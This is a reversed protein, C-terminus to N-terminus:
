WKEDDSFLYQSWNSLKSKKMLLISANKRLAFSPIEDTAYITCPLRAKKFIERRASEVKQGCRETREIM